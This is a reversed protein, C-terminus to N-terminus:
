EAVTSEARLRFLRGQGPQVPVRDRVLLHTPSEELIEVFGAGSQWTGSLDGSVEPVLVVDLAYPNRPIRVTLTHGSGYDELTVAPMDDSATLLPHLGMAFALLNPLGLPGNRDLPGRRDIPLDQLVSWSEFAGETGSSLTFSRTDRGGTNTAVEVTFHHSSAGVPTGSLLGDRSLSLGPPLSGGVVSWIRQGVGGSASLPYHFPVANDIPPLDSSRTELRLPHTVWADGFLAVQVADVGLKGLGKGWSNNWLYIRFEVPVQVGSALHPFGRLDASIRVGSGSGLGTSPLPGPPDLPVTHWTSFGDTSWRLAYNFNVHQQDFVGFFLRDLRVSTNPEPSAIFSFYMSENLTAGVSTTTGFAQSSVHTSTTPQFGTMGLASSQLYLDTSTSSVTQKLVADDFKWALLPSGEAPVVTVMNSFGSEVGDRFYTVVIHYSRDNELGHILYDIDEFWVPSENRRTWESDTRLKFYINYGEANPVSPWRAVAAADASFATLGPAGFPQGEVGGIVGDVFFSGQTAVIRVSHLGKSLFVGEPTEVTGGSPGSLIEVADNALVRFAGGPSTRVQFSYYGSVPAIVNWSIWGGTSLSGQNNRHDWWKSSNSLASNIPLGNTAEAALSAAAEDWAQMRRYLLHNPLDAQSIAFERTYDTNVALGARQLARIANAEGVRVADDFFATYYQLPMKNADGGPYWGGEYSIAQLGFTQPYRYMSMVRAEWNSVDPAGEAFGGGSPITGAAMVATSAIQINDLLVLNDLSASTGEIRIRYTRSSDAISFPASGFFDFGQEVKTWYGEGSFSGLAPRIDTQSRPTIPHSTGGDVLFMRVPNNHKGTAPNWPQQDRKQALHFILGYLGPQPFEVEIEMAGTGAIFAAQPSFIGQATSRGQDDQGNKSDQLFGLTRSGDSTRIPVRALQFGVPGFSRGPDPVYVWDLSSSVERGKVTGDITIGPPASLRAGVAHADGNNSEQSVMYYSRGAQLLIPYSFFKRSAVFNISGTRVYAFDGTPEGRLPLDMSVLRENTEADYIRLAHTGSNGPLVLRGMEYIAVDENGVTFRFGRWNHTDVTQTTEGLEVVGVPNRSAQRYVGATGHFVWPSDVPAIVAHGDALVPNEFSGHGLSSLPSGAVVGLRDASAYYTAAGGGYFFWSVPRAPGEWTSAPDTKNFYDDLFFFVNRATNNTNDYQYMFLPRVRPDKKGPAPLDQDGFVERFINSIEVTRLGVYRSAMQMSISGSPSQVGDYNLIAYRRGDASQPNAAHATRLRGVEGYIWGAQPYQGASNWPAENSYEVNVRLNPNLPPHFPNPTPEPYPLFNEDSGHRILQAMKRIYDDTARHPVQIYLDRGSHNNLLIKYEHNENTGDGGVLGNLRRRDSWDQDGVGNVDNWRYTVFREMAALADRAFIEGLSHPEDAGNTVPRMLRLDTVGSNVGAPGGPGDRNTDRFQPWCNDRGDAITMLLTTTNTAPDYGQGVQTTHGFVQTRDASRFVTTTGTLHVSLRASGRFQLLYTGPNLVEDQPRILFSFDETPWGAADRSLPQGSVFGGWNTAGWIADAAMVARPLPTEGVMATPQIVEQPTSPSAWLLRLMASGTRQRYEVRVRYAVGREMALEAVIPPFTDEETTPWHELLPSGFEAGETDPAIWVRVSDGYVTFTYTETFRAMLRGEWRASWHERGLQGLRTWPLSGGPAYTSGWDFDLRIDRRTFWPDGGHHDNAYYSGLLGSDLLGGGVPNTTALAHPPSVQHLLCAAFGCLLHYLKRM